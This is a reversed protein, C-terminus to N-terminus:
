GAAKVLAVYEPPCVNWYGKAVEAPLWIWPQVLGAATASCQAYQEIQISATAGPMLLWLAVHDNRWRRMMTQHGNEHAYVWDLGPQGYRTSILTLYADNISIVDNTADYWAIPQPPPPAACATMTFLAVLALCLVVLLWPYRNM